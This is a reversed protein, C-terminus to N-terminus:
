RKGTLQTISRGFGYSYSLCLKFVKAGNKPTSAKLKEKNKEIYDKNVNGSVVAASYYILQQTLNKVIYISIYLNM